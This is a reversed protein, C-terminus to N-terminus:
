INNLFPWTHIPQLLKQAIFKLYHDWASYIMDHEIQQDHRDQIFEKMSDKSLLLFYKHKKLQFQSFFFLLILQLM